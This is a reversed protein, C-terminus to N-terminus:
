TVLKQGIACPLFLECTEDQDGNVPLKPDLDYWLIQSKTWNEVAYYSEFFIANFRILLTLM